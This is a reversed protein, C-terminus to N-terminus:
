CRALIRSMPAENNNTRWVKDALDRHAVQRIQCCRAGSFPELGNRVGTIAFLHTMALMPNQDIEKLLDCACQHRNLLGLVVFDPSPADAYPANKQLYELAEIYGGVRHIRGNLGAEALSRRVVQSHELQHELLLINLANATDTKLGDM